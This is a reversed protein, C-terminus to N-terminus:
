LKRFISMAVTVSAHSCCVRSCLLFSSIYLLIVASASLLCLAQPLQAIIHVVNVYIEGLVDFNEAKGEEKKDNSYLLKTQRM